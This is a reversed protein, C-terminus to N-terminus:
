SLKLAYRYSYVPSFGLRSYLRRAGENDENVPIWGFEAGEAAGQAMMGQILRSGLGLGRLEPKVWLDDLQLYRGQRVTRGYGAPVGNHYVLVYRVPLVLKELVSREWPKIDPNDAPHIAYIVEHWEALPLAEVDAAKGSPLRGAMVINPHEISYGRGALFPEIEGHGPLGALRFCPMLNRSQYERECFAVKEALPREGVYLPWVSNNHLSFGQTLRVLWGDYLFHDFAPWSNASLEEFFRISRDM